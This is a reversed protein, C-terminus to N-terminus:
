CVSKKKNCMILSVRVLAWAQNVSLLFAEEMVTDLSLYLAINEQTAALWDEEIERIIRAELEYGAAIGGTSKKEEKKLTTEAKNEM